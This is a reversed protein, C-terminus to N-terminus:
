ESGMNEPRLLGTQVRGDPELWLWRCAPGAPDLTFKECGPLGNAVSSPSGLWLIGEDKSVFDQHVHGWAVCRVRGDKSLMERFREPSELPYRDIWHSRVPMPQHHLLVLVHAQEHSELGASLASLSADDLVGDIRDRGTSDLLVILWDGLVVFRPGSWPGTEFHKQMEGPDDHNGPLALVPVDVKALRESVANYSAPSGDESVDGTLLIADPGFARVQPM